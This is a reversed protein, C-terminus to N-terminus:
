REGKLKLFLPLVVLAYMVCAFAVGVIDRGGVKVEFDPRHHRVAMTWAAALGFFIWVVSHYAMSLTNIQFSMGLMSALLAMGWVRAVHAGPVGDLQRVGLFLSKLTVWLIMSFLFLGVFGLEAMTLVFTNHATMYHHDTFHRPGVGLVPNGLFMDLGSSWAEYRLKTSQAASEGERGGLLALPAAAMAAAVLGAVGYRRIFYVGPVAMAVILGGRSQTLVVTWAVIFLAVGGVIVRRASPHRLVFALLIALGGISIILALENPDQLEGRYRIRGEISSTGFWGARECRYEQGPEADPGHCDLALQCPRGDPIGEGEGGVQVICQTPAHAQQFGVATLFLCSALVAGGAVQLARFRQVAHALLVYLTFVITLEISVKIADDPTVVAASLVAWGLFAAAWPLTPAAMPQLRRLRLDIVFGAVALGCLLYLTPIAALLPIFEQPRTLVIVVLGCIGPLAFM